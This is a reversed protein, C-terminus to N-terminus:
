SSVKHAMSELIVEADRKLQRDDGTLCARIARIAPAGIKQAASFNYTCVFQYAKLTAEWDPGLDSSLDTSDRLLATAATGRVIHHPDDLANAIEKRYHSSDIQGRAMVVWNRISRDQSMMWYSLIKDVESVTLHSWAKFAAELLSKEPYHIQPMQDARNFALERRVTVEIPPIWRRQNLTRAPPYWEWPGSYSAVLIRFRKGLMYALHMMWGEITVILDSQAVFHKIRRMNQQANSLNPLAITHKRTHEDLLDLVQQIKEESGWSEGNSVVLLGYGEDVLSKMMAPLKEFSAETFGKLPESGGFFNLLAVSGRGNAKFKEKFSEWSEDIEKPIQDAAVAGAIPIDEALRLPLGLCEILRMTSDYNLPLLRKNIGFKSALEEGNVKLSEFVFCNDGKRAWLFFPPETTQLHSQILEQAAINYCNTAHYPEFFIIVGDWPESLSDTLFQLDHITRLRIRQHDYLYLRDTLLTAELEPFGDLFAQLIPHVRLIEDGQNDSINQVVLLRPKERFYGNLLNRSVADYPKKRVSSLMSESLSLINPSRKRKVADPLAHVREPFWHCLHQLLLEDTDDFESSWAEQLWSAVRAGGDGHLMILALSQWLDAQQRFQNRCRDLFSLPVHECLPPAVLLITCLEAVSFARLVSDEGVIKQIM